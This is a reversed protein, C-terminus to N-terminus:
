PSTRQRTEPLALRARVDWTSVRFALAPSAPDAPLPTFGLRHHLDLSTANDPLVEAEVHTLDPREALDRLFAAMMRGGAGPPATEAGIYFSWKAGGKGDFQAGAFGLPTDDESYIWRLGDTRSVTAAVWALHTDWVLPARTLSVARIRPQNRWDFLMQADEMRLPRFRGSLATVVKATGTGNCIRAAQVALAAAGAIAQRLAAALREPNRAEALTLGVVAGRQALHAVGPLQNDAVAVALTPLGLCCREWSTMGGAGICLDARAMRQAMDTADLTMQFRPNGAVLAEVAARSQSASGMVVEAELGPDTAGLVALAMPALGAADMMGPAILVRRVPGGRRALAEPRAQAFEPRLLAFAPGRLVALPLFHCAEGGLRAQDLVLDAALPRDDLDDIALVRVEPWAARLATVWRADLGYHDFIVWDPPPGPHAAITREADEAWPLSLWHALPPTAEPHHAVHPLETLAFGAARIPELLADPDQASVFQVAHGAERLGRALTLCRMVHGGGIQASGDARILFRM